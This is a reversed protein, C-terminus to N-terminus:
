CETQRSLQKGKDLEQVEHILYKHMLQPQWPHAYLFPCAKIRECELNKPKKWRQTAKKDKDMNKKRAKCQKQQLDYSEDYSKLKFEM